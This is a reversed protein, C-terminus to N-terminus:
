KCKRSDSPQAPLTVKKKRGTEVGKYNIQQKRMLVHISWRFMCPDICVFTVTCASGVGLKPRLSLSLLWMISKNEDWQSRRKWKQFEIMKSWRANGSTLRFVPVCGAPSIILLHAQRTLWYTETLSRIYLSFFWYNNWSFWSSFFLCHLNCNMTKDTWVNPEESNFRQVAHQWADLEIQVERM